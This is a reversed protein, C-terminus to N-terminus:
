RTLVERLKKKGDEYGKRYASDICENTQRRLGSLSGQKLQTINM